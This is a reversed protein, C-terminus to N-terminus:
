DRLCRLSLGAAKGYGDMYSNGSFFTLIWGIPSSDQTSSWSAGNSGRGNLSGDSDDLYGAAGVCFTVAKCNTVHLLVCEWIKALLM